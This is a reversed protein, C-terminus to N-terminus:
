FEKYLFTYYVAIYVYFYRDYKKRMTQIYKKLTLLIKHEKKRTGNELPM